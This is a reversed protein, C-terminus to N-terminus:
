GRVGRLRQLVVPGVETIDGAGLTLVLDGAEVLEVLRDPVDAVSPVYHTDVGAREAAEAVLEGTVGAVPQEGAGYVDTVIVTDAEILAAGLQAGLAATRSFRHPQFVALVRGGPATQRAASLTARLEVPHHGYDDVVTVGAATGLREFRRSTGAFAALGARIADWDVGAHVATLAAATANAVNHRGPLAIEFPGVDDGRYRLRFRAGGPHTDVADIQLTAEQHEGYGLVPEAVRDLVRQVGPDDLCLVAVGDTRRRRLFALFAADVADLDAFEDHHDLDVNTVVAVDPEYVLFSSDSEDAEAVFWEGAGHHASTGADHLTGGIAFSPDLGGHQLCVATMSTTTTKGHTGAILVRGKDAMLTALLQARRLVPVGTRRAHALEPNHEPIATSAVVVDADDVLAADHGVSIAAGMARLATVTRGARLDSGTVPHGRQLLIWALPSMGAGGIGILHVRVGPRLWGHDMAADPDDHGTVSMNQRRGSDSGSASDQQRGSDSSSASM